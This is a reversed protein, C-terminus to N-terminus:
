RVALSYNSFEPSDTVEREIELFPPFVVEQRSRELEVELLFLGERPSLFRDLEFYQNQWLFCHRLKKIAQRTPDAQSLFSIYERGSINPEVQVRQEGQPPKKLSHTYTYAGQQGRRRVRAESGDETHLYTQEIELREFRVPLQRPASKVLFKREVALPAPVGVVRCVSEVVRLIKDKFDGENSIIRLHPHGVWADRLKHDLERAQEPSETRATNNATTYFAEAGIAATVLHFVADYRRDRVGIATLGNEDLLGQWAQTPLYASIDMMGRDYFVVSPQGSLRALEYFSDELAQQTKLVVAEIEIIQALSLGVFSIGGNVLMTPVEPVCFVRFGLSQLRESLRSLATTKGGCPGGTLVIRYIPAM